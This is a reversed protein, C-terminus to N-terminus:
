SHSIVYSGVKVSWIPPHRTTEIVEATMPHKRARTIHQSAARAPHLITRAQM